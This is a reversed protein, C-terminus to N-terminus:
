PLKSAAGGGLEAGLVDAPVGDLADGPREEPVAGVAGTGLVPGDVPTEAYPTPEIGWDLVV